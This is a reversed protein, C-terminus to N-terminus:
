AAANHDEETAATRSIFDRAAEYAREGQEATPVHRAFKVLDAEGLFGSLRSRFEGPLERSAQAATLFEQTTMEPARLHFRREVYERVIASLRVYFEPQRGEELLRARRLALLAELAITHPPREIVAGNTTRSRLWLFLAIAAAVLLVLVAALYWLASRDRPVGVPGAIDRLSLAAVDAEDGILGAISVVVEPIEVEELGGGPQRYAISGGKVLHLGVEYGVLEYWQQSVLAGDDSESQPVSGYDRILFQGIRDVLLPLVVEAEGRSEVRVFYRFPVGIGVEEPEVRGTVVVPGGDSAIAVDTLLVLGLAAGYLLLAGLGQGRAGLGQGKM